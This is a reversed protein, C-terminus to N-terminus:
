FLKSLIKKLRRNGPSGYHILKGNIILAPTIHIKFGNSSVLNNFYNKDIKTFNLGETKYVIRKIEAELEDCESCHDSVVLTINM